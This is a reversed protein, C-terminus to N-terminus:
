GMSYRKSAFFLNVLISPRPYGNLDLVHQFREWNFGRNQSRRNLARFLLRKVAHLFLKIRHLDDNVAFYNM